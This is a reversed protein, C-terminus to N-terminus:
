SGQEATIEPSDLLVLIFHLGSTNGRRTDSDRQLLLRRHRAGPPPQRLTGRGARGQEHGGEGYERRLAGELIM